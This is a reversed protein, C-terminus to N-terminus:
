SPVRDMVPMGDGIRAGITDIAEPPAGDERCAIHLVSQGQRTLIGDLMEVIQISRLNTETDLEFWRELLGQRHRRSELRTRIVEPSASLCILFNAHPILELARAALFQDPARGLLMLSCVLQVFGQDIIVIGHSREALRWSAELRTTYQRLRLSWVPSRAPMIRLLASALSRNDSAGAGSGKAALREMVPRVVRSIPSLIASGARWEDVEAPRFSLLVEVSHGDSRLRAALKKAFRTKGSAPAGFLEIIM